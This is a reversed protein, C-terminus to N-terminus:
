QEDAGTNRELRVTLSHPVYRVFVDSWYKEGMAAAVRETMAAAEAVRVDEYERGGIRVGVRPATTNRRIRDAARSGLRVYVRDDLVVLWVTSWHKGEQPGVTLLELTDLHRFAAPDWNPIVPRSTCAHAGFVALAVLFLQGRRTTGTSREM